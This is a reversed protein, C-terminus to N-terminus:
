SPIPQSRALPFGSGSVSFPSPRSSMRASSHLLAGTAVTQIGDFLQFAAGAALLFTTARIVDTAPTYMRAIAHPFILLAASACTMFAAGLFIATNGADGAARPDKRGIAQGVPSSKMAFPVRDGSLEEEVGSTMDTASCGNM